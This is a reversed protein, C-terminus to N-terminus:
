GDTARRFPRLWVKRGMKIVRENDHTVEAVITGEKEGPRALIIKVARTHNQAALRRGWTWCALQGGGFVLSGSVAFYSRMVGERDAGVGADAFM